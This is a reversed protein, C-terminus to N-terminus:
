NSYPSLLHIIESTRDMAQPITLHRETRCVQNYIYYAAREDVGLVRCLCKVNYFKQEVVSLKQENM